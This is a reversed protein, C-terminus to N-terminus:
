LLPALEIWTIESYENPTNIIAITKNKDAIFAKLSNGTSGFAFYDKYIPDNQIKQWASDKTLGLASVYEDFTLIKNNVSDYFFTEYTGYWESFMVGVNCNINIGIIGNHETYHYLYNVLMDDETNNQLMTLMETCLAYMKDNLVKAETGDDVIEPIVISHPNYTVYDMDKYREPIIVDKKYTFGDKVFALTPTTEEAKEGLFSEHKGFVYGDLSLPMDILTYTANEDAIFWRLSDNTEYQPALNQWLTEKSLGLISTYEGFSLEKKNISDYYFSHYNFGGSGAQGSVLTEIAIGFIGNYETFVYKCHYIYYYKPGNLLDNYHASFVDYMKQNLTKVAEGTDVIKPIYVKHNGLDVDSNEGYVQPDPIIKTEFAVADEVTVPKTEPEPKTETEPQGQDDPVLIETNNENNEEKEKGFIAGTKDNKDSKEEDCGIFSFAMVVILLLAIKKM